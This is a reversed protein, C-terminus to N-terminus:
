PLQKELAERLQEQQKYIEYLEKSQEEGNSQKGNLIFKGEGEKNGKEGKRKASEKDGKKDGSKEGQKQMQSQMEQKIDGQKQIIDPLSFSQGEGKGKGKGQGFAPPPNQL